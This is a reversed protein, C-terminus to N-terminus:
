EELKKKQKTPIWPLFPSVRQAQSRGIGLNNQSAVEFDKKEMQDEGQMGIESEVQQETALVQYAAQYAKDPNADAEIQLAAIQAMKKRMKDLYQNWYLCKCDWHKPSSCVKCPSPPPKGLKTDKNSM